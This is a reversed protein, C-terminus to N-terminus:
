ACDYIGEELGGDAARVAERERLLHANGARIVMYQNCPKVSLDIKIERIKLNWPPCIVTDGHVSLVKKYFTGGITLIM